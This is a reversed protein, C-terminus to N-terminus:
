KESWTLILSIEKQGAQKWDAMDVRYSKCKSLIDKVPLTFERGVYGMTGFVEGRCVIQIANPDHANGPEEELTLYSNDRKQNIQDNSMSAVFGNWTTKRREMMTCGRCVFKFYNYGPQDLGPNPQLMNEHKITKAYKVNLKKNVM